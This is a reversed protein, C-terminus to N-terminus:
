ATPNSIGQYLKRRRQSREWYGRGEMEEKEEDEEDKKKQICKQKRTFKQIDLKM